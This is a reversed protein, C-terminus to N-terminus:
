GSPLELRRIRSRIMNQDAASLKEWPITVSKRSGTQITVTIEIKVLDGTLKKGNKDTWLRDRDQPLEGLKLKPVNVLEYQSGNSELFQPIQSERMARGIIRDERLKENLEPDNTQALVSGGISLLICVVVAIRSM